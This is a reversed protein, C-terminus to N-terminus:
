KAGITELEVVSSSRIGIKDLAVVLPNVITRGVQREFKFKRLAKRSDVAAM